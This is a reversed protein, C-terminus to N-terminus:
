LELRSYTSSNDSIPSLKGNKPNRRHFETLLQTQRDIWGDGTEFKSVSIKSALQTIKMFSLKFLMGTISPGM